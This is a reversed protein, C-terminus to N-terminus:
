LIRREAAQCRRDRRVDAILELAPIVVGPVEHRRILVEATQRHLAIRAIGRVKDMDGCEAIHDKRHRIHVCTDAARVARSLKPNVRRIGRADIGDCIQVAIHDRCHRSKRERCAAKRPEARALGIMDILQFGILIRCGSGINGRDRGILLSRLRERHNRRCLRVERCHRIGRIIRGRNCDIRRIRVALIRKYVVRAIRDCRAKHTRAGAAHDERPKVRRSTIRNDCLRVAACLVRRRIRRRSVARGNRRRHLASRDCVVVKRDLNIVVRCVAAAQEQM